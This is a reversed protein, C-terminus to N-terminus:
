SPQVLCDLSGLYSAPEACFGTLKVTGEVGLRKVERLLEARFGADDPDEEGAIVFAVDAHQRCVLAAARVFDTLGKWRVLRGLTGVRFQRPGGRRPKWDVHRSLATGDYMTVIRDAPVGAAVHARRVAESVAVLHTPLAMALRWRRTARSRPFSRLWAVCPVRALRAALVATVHTNPGNNLRILAVAGKRLRVYFWAISWLQDALYRVAGRVGAGRRAPPPALWVDDSLAALVGTAPLWTYLCVVHRYAGHPRAALFHELCRVSGGYASACEVHVIVDRKEAPRARNEKHRFRM